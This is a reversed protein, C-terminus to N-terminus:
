EAEEDHTFTISVGENQDKVYEVTQTRVQRDNVFLGAGTSRETEIEAADIYCACREIVAGYDPWHGRNWQHWRITVDVPGEWPQHASTLVRNIGSIAQRKYEQFLDHKGGKGLTQVRGNKSLEVPPLPVWISLETITSTSM